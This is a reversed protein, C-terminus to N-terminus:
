ARVYRRYLGQWTRNSHLRNRSLANCWHVFYWSDSLRSQGTSLWAEIETPDDRNCIQPYIFRQLGLSALEIDLIEMGRHWATNYATIERTAAEYCRRMLESKPPCRFVNAMAALKWHDHFVYECEFDLPKLCTVDMDSWWGGHEFLLKYRFIEAFGAHSGRGSPLDLLTDESYRFVEREPLIERADKQVAGEPLEISNQDYSWLWFQCGNAVYSHITLMELPSLASGVWLSHVIPPDSLVVKSQEVAPQSTHRNHRPYPMRNRSLVDCREVLRAIHGEASYAEYKKSFRLAGNQYDVLRSLIQDLGLVVDQDSAFGAATGAQLENVRHTLLTQELYIPINLVPKGALLMSALVGHTANLVVLDSWEAAADLNVPRSVFRLTPSVFRQQLSPDLGDIYFLAPLQRSELATLLAPLSPFNKLYGFVRPGSGSPWEVREGVGRPWAGWYQVPRMGFHDLEAFSTVFTDDVEAYLDALHALCPQKGRQRLFRNLDDLVTEEDLTANLRSTGGRLVPLPSVPPPCFFGTGIVCRSFEYSRAALLATPSHDCVLLDPSTLDFISEWADLLSALENPYGFGINHLIHAYTAAQDFPPGGVAHKFPAQLLTAPPEAALHRAKSLDRLAAYVTHGRARLGAAIPWLQSLHGLGAGLEWAFLICAM